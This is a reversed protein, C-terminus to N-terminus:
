EQEDQKTLGWDKLRKFLTSRAVGLERAVRERNNNYRRLAAEVIQRELKELMQELTMGPPLEPVAIGTEKNMEQDFTLDAADIVPGKRFLLARHVVNRLERINGPWMHGRLREVAAASFSVTQGRPAYVKVFHEALAPLDSKRSRLPPLHLPIVCLRYYLDERFKGERAAALLDLNTAAVVRVDVHMPRSAGVRKIEGSELARLLKAQLDLPLEGIEDLFLTGGDAEEFAGKRANAAGTFSGKEHGFLESEILEKSIAACNVPVLPKNARQSCQHIAKAVLEKGTGSEGLITVAATSPAVREILDALGKVATDNGIIGHFSAVEKKSGTAAVELVLETEGVRLTTPLTVEAEFLRVPGLWTGNTSRLDVVHFTGERRTVKLHKSSAFRDQLVLDCGADKGATFSDGTLRHVSENLGQKVRVQAPQWRPVQADKQISTTHGVETAVDAGEGGGSLRFVARWQGLVLDAGDPLEADTVSTGGVVTGKGSLDQVRCRTGDWLLAVQQRSVEPDPIAVDSQEGRGLVLRARDVGVRLVEEGRRFFVLEPM